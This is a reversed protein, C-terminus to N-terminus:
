DRLSGNPWDQVFLKPVLDTTQVIWYKKTKQKKTKQQKFFFTCTPLKMTEQIKSWYQYQIM